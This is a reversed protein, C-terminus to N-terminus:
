LADVETCLGFTLKARCASAEISFCVRTQVVVDDSQLVASSESLVLSNADLGKLRRRKAPRQAAKRLSCSWRLSYM